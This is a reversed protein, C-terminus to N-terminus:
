YAGLRSFAGVEFLRESELGLFKLGPCRISYIHYKFSNSLIMFLSLM